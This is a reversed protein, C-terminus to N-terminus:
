VRESVDVRVPCKSRLDAIRVIPFKALPTVLTPTVRHPLQHTDGQKKETFFSVVEKIM